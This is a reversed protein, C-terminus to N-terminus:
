TELFCMFVGIPNEVAGLSFRDSFDKSVTKGQPVVTQSITDTRSFNHRFPFFSSFQSLLYESILNQKLMNQTNYM